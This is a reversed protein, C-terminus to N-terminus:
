RIFIRVEMKTPKYTDTVANYSCTLQSTEGRVGFVSELKQDLFLMLQLSITNKLNLTLFYFRFFQM